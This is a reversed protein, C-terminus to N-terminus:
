RHSRTGSAFGQSLASRRCVDHIWGLTPSLKQLIQTRPQCHGRNPCQETGFHAPFGQTNQQLPLDIKTGFNGFISVLHRRIAVCFWFQFKQSFDRWFLFSNKAKYSLHLYLKVSSKGFFFNPIKFKRHFNWPIKEVFNHCTLTPQQDKTYKDFRWRTYLVTM